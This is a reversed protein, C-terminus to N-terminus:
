STLMSTPPNAARLLSTFSLQNRRQVHRTEHHWQPLLEQLLEPCLSTFSFCESSSVPRGSEGNATTYNDLKKINEMLNKTSQLHALSIADILAETSDGM